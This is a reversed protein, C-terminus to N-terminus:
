IIFPNILEKESQNLPAGSRMEVITTIAKNIRNTPARAIVLAMSRNIERDSLPLALRTPSRALVIPANSRLTRLPVAASIANAM